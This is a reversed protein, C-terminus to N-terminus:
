RSGLELAVFLKGKEKYTRICGVNFNNDLNEKHTKSNLWAQFIQSENTFGRSLNEGMQYCDECWYFVHRNYFGNHSWDTSIEKARIKAFQCLRSDIKIEPLKNKERYKAILGWLADKKFSSVERRIEEKQIKIGANKGLLYSHRSALLIIAAFLLIKLQKKM